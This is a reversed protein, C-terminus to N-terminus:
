YKAVWFIHLVTTVYAQGVVEELSQWFVVSHPNLGAANVALTWRSM